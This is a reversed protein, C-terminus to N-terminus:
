AAPVSAAYVESATGVVAGSDTEGRCARSTNDRYSDAALLDTGM